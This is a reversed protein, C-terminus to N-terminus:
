PRARTDIEASVAMGPRLRGGPDAGPALRIRVPVRRAPQFWSFGGTDGAALSEVVGPLPGLGTKLLVAQGPRVNGLQSANFSAEVWPDAPGQVRADDTSVFVRGHRWITMAWLAGLAALALLTPRLIGPRAPTAM